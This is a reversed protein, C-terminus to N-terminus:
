YSEFNEEIIERVRKQVRNSLLRFEITNTLMIECNKNFKTGDINLFTNKIGNEAFIDILYKQIIMFYIYKCSDDNVRRKNENCNICIQYVFVILALIIGIAAIFGSNVNCFNIILNMFSELKQILSM